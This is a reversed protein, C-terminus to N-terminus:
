CEKSVRGNPGTSLGGRRCQNTKPHGRGTVSQRISYRSLINTAVVWSYRSHIPCEACRAENQVVWTLWSIAENQLHSFQLESHHRSKFSTGCLTISSSNSGLPLEPWAGRRDTQRRAVMQGPERLPVWITGADGTNAKVKLVRPGCPSIPYSLGALCSLPSCLRRWLKALYHNTSKSMRVFIMGYIDSDETNPHPNRRFCPLCSPCFM